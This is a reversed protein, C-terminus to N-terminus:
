ISIMSEIWNFCQFLNPVDLMLGMKWISNFHVVDRRFCQHSRFVASRIQCHSKLQWDWQSFQSKQFKSCFSCKCQIESSYRHIDRVILSLSSLERHVCFISCPFNKLLSLFAQSKIAKKRKLALLFIWFTSFKNISPM